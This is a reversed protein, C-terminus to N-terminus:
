GGKRRQRRKHMGYLVPALVHDYVWEAIPRVIPARVLRALWSFRPMQAWLAAFAPLGSIMVGDQIVHLRKAATDPTLGYQSVDIDGLDTYRIPLAKRQSYRAYSAIERSCIPCSGNFIVDTTQDKSM